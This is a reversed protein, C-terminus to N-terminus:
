ENNKNNKIIFQMNRCEIFKVPFKEVFEDVAKKLEHQYPIYKEEIHYDDGMIIGNSKVKKFAMELDSKVAEYFHDGDIYIWDFFDDKFFNLANKSFDRIIIVREDNEFEKSTHEFAEDMKKQNWGEGINNSINDFLKWPDILFLKKPNSMKLIQKSFSGNRVGIECCISEKPVIKFLFDRDRAHKSRFFRNKLRVSKVKLRMINQSFINRNIKHKFQKEHEIIQKEDELPWGCTTCIIHTDNPNIALFKTL